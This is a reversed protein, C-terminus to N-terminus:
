LVGAQDRDRPVHHSWLLRCVLPLAIVARRDLVTPNALVGLTWEDDVLWQVYVPLRVCKALVPGDAEVLDCGDGKRELRAVPASAGDRVVGESLYVGIPAGGPEFVTFAPESSARYREVYFVPADNGDVVTHREDLHDLADGSLVADVLGEGDGRGFRQTLVTGVVEGGPTVYALPGNASKRTLHVVGSV